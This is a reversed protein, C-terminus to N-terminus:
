IGMFFKKLAELFTFMAAIPPWELRSQEICRVVYEVITGFSSVIDYIYRATELAAFLIMITLSGESVKVEFQGGYRTELSEKIRAELAPGAAAVEAWNRNGTISITIKGSALGLSLTTLSAQYRTRRANIRDLQAKMRRRANTEIENLSPGSSAIFVPPSVNSRARATSRSFPPAPKLSRGEDLGPETNMNAGKAPQLFRPDLSLLLIGKNPPNHNLTKLLSTNSIASKKENRIRV